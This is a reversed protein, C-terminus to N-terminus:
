WDILDAEVLAIHAHCAGGHMANLVGHVLAAAGAIAGPAHLRFMGYIAACDDPLKIKSELVTVTATIGHATLM